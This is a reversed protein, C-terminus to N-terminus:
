DVFQHCEFRFYVMSCLYKFLISDGLHYEYPPTFSSPISLNRQTPTCTVGGVTGCLKDQDTSKFAKLEHPKTQEQRAFLRLHCQSMALILLHSEWLSNQCNRAGIPRDWFNLLGYSFNSKQGSNGCRQVCHNPQFPDLFKNIMMRITILMM